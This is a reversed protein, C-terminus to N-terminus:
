GPRGREGLRLGTMPDNVQDGLAERLDWVLGDEPQKGMIPGRRHLVLREGLVAALDVPDELAEGFVHHGVREPVTV